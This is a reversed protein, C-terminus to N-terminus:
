SGPYQLQVSVVPKSRKMSADGAGDIKMMNM